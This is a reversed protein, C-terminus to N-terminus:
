EVELPGPAVEGGLVRLDAVFGPYSTPIASADDIRIGERSMTGLVAFAMAIRHDGASAIEGGRAEGGSVALGDAAESATIGIASLGRALTAIRDSEKVRLEGAGSLRSTGHAATAAIVWAPVEDIWRPLWEAPPDFARLRDPGTVIVDGIPEGGSIITERREVTAGMSELVDLFGTRTPNLGVAHATVRAGPRAAAAALFFAASSLDGPISFTGAALKASGAIRVRRGGEPLVEVEIPAGAATLMREGHDRAPGPIRIVTEGEAQLAAFALCTAVQASAVPLAYDIGRLSGGAITLPPLRDGERASLRAGMRRLPEVIRAVPRRILSADGTLTCEFAHGALVGPLMRMTSGSNGCDLTTRPARLAGSNRVRVSAGHSHVDLGLAECAALTSRCDAGPNPREVVTEGTALLAILYARHTISKDGPPTVTGSLARGPRVVLPSALADRSM